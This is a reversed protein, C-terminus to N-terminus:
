SNFSNFLGKTIRKFEEVGSEVYVLSSASFKLLLYSVKTIGVFQSFRWISSIVFMKEFIKYSNGISCIFIFNGLHISPKSKEWGKFVSSKLSILFAKSLAFIKLSIGEETFLIDWVSIISFLEISLM